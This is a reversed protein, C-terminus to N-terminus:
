HLYSLLSISNLSFIKATINLFFSSGSSSKQLLNLSPGHAGSRPHCGQSHVWPSPSPSSNESCLLSNSTSNATSSVPHSCNFNLSLTSFFSFPPPPLSQCCSLLFKLTWFLFSFFSPLLYWSLSLPFHFSLQLCLVACFDHHPGSPGAAPRSGVSPLFQLPVLQTCRGEMGSGPQHLGPLTDMRSPTLVPVQPRRSPSM